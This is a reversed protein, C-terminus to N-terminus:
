LQEGNKEKDVFLVFSIRKKYDSSAQDKITKKRTNRTKRPGRKETCLSRPTQIFCPRFLRAVDPIMRLYCIGQDVDIAHM